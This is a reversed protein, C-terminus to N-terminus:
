LEASSWTQRATRLARQAAETRGQVQLAKAAALWRDKEPHAPLQDTSLLLVSWRGADEWASDFSAFGVERRRVNGSRLVLTRERQDYGVLVAFQESSGFAGGLLVLVPNGAAVQQMLADLTADLPYVLTDHSRAASEVGLRADETDAQRIRSELLGPSSVVRRQNLMMALASPAGREGSAQFFPVDSLEVREALKRTEPLLQPSSACAGLMCLLVVSLPWVVFVRFSSVM